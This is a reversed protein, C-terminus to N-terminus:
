CPTDDINAHGNAARALVFLLDSLRNVYILLEPAFARPRTKALSVLNREARRCVARAFHLTAAARSGVPLIFATVPEMAAEYQDIVQEIAAVEPAGIKTAPSQGSGVAVLEAGVDFLRLQIQELLAEAGKPLSECRALGLLANLEDLDGCVELLPSDKPVRVGGLLDTEGHDGTRTYIAM